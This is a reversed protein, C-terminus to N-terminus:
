ETTCTSNSKTYITKCAADGCLHDDKIYLMSEKGKKSEPTFTIVGKKIKYKGYELDSTTIEDSDAHTYKGWSKINYLSLDSKAYNQEASKVGSMKELEEIYTGISDMTSLSIRYTDYIDIENPDLGFDEAYDERSIYEVVDVNEFTEIKNSIRERDSDKHNKNLLVVITSTENYRCWYGQYKSSNNTLFNVGLIILIVIAIMGTIIYKKKM